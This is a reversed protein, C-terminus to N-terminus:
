LNDLSVTLRSGIVAYKPFSDFEERTKFEKYREKPVLHFKEMSYAKVKKHFPKLFNNLQPTVSSTVFFEFLKDYSVGKTGFKQNYEKSVALDLDPYKEIPRFTLYQLKSLNFDKGVEALVLNLSDLLATFNMEKYHECNLFFTSDGRNEYVMFNLDSTDSGVWYYKFVRSYFRQDFAEPKIIEKKLVPDNFNKGSNEFTFLSTTLVFILILVKM